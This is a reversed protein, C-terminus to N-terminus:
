IMKKLLREQIKGGAYKGYQWNEAMARFIIKKNENAKIYPIIQAFSHKSALELIIEENKKIENGAYKFLSIDKRLLELIFLVDDTITNEAFKLIEPNLIIMKKVWKTDQKLKPIVHQFKSADNKLIKEVKTKKKFVISTSPIFEFDNLKEVFSMVNFLEFHAYKTCKANCRILILMLEKNKLIDGHAFKLIESDYIVAKKFFEMSLYISDHFYPYFLTKWDDCLTEIAVNASYISKYPLTRIFLPNKKVIILLIETDNEYRYPFYGLNRWDEEAVRLIIERTIPFYKPFISPDHDLVKCVIKANQKIEQSFLSIVDYNIDMSKMAFDVNSKLKEGIYKYMEWNEMIVSYANEIDNRLSESQFQFYLERTPEQFILEEDTDSM